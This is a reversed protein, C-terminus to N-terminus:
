RGPSPTKLFALLDALEQRTLQEDLGQPMLSVTGPQVEVIDRRPIRIEDREGSALVVEDALDSRLLGARVEGSRMQIVVPEYGRAFGASPFVIAELLDRESRVQGIRTLDPGIRGGMYGIAHCSSCAAKPSNFVVQGRGPDGGQVAPMLEELRRIEAASDLSISALLKEGELQVSAPYKLLLPRLIEARLSSRGKSQRVAAIMALGAQEDGGRGFARLLRPLELPGATQLSAALMMLQAGELRAKEVARAAASRISAPQSPELGARLLDFVDADVIFGDALAALADLRIEITRARDSAVRRLAAQLVSSSDKPATAARVVSLVNTAVELDGSELARVLPGVWGSPLVKVRTQAVVAMTRLATLREARSTGGELASALLQQIAPHEGFQALRQQLDDRDVPSVGAATLHEEFFRALADGWAPRHAVIWWATEKLVPDTSDLLSVVSGPDLAGDDMQDLAILATRRSRSTAAQLGTATSARDNIEILAYTISHELVRDLPAAALALLDPVARAEGVRGLAEAAARQV